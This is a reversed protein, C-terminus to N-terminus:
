QSNNSFLQPVNPQKFNDTNEPNSYEKWWEKSNLM